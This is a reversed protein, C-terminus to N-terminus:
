GGGGGEGGEGGGAGVGDRGEENTECLESKKEVIAEKGREGGKELCVVPPTMGEEKELKIAVGREGGGGWGM